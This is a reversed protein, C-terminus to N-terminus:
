TEKNKPEPAGYRFAGYKNKLDRELAQKGVQVQTRRDEKKGQKPLEPRFYHLLQEPTGQPATRNRGQIFTYADKGRIINSFMREGSRLDVEYLSGDRVPRMVLHSQDIEEELKEQGTKEKKARKPKEDEYEYDDEDLDRFDDGGLCIFVCKQHDKALIRQAKESLNKAGILYLGIGTRRYARDDMLVPLIIRTPEKMSQLVRFMTEWVEREEATLVGSSSTQGSEEKDDQRRLSFGEERCWDDLMTLIHDKRDRPPHDEEGQDVPFGADYLFARADRMVSAYLVKRRLQNLDTEGVLDSRDRLAELIRTYQARSTPIRKLQDVLKKGGAKGCLGCLWDRDNEDLKLKRNRDALEELLKELPVRSFDGTRWKKEWDEESTRLEEEKEWRKKLLYQFLFSKSPDSDEYSGGFEERLKGYFYSRIDM